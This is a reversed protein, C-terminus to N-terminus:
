SKAISNAIHFHKNMFGNHKPRSLWVFLLSLLIPTVSYVSLTFYNGFMITWIPKQLFAFLLLYRIDLRSKRYVIAVFLIILFTYVVIGMAGMDLYMPTLWTAANLAGGYTTLNTDEYFNSQLDLSPIMEAFITWNSGHEVVSNFNNFNPSIYSYVANFAPPYPTYNFVISGEDVRLMIMLIFGVAVIGLAVLLNRPKINIRRALIALLGFVIILLTGRSVQVFTIYLVCVAIEIIEIIAVRKQPSCIVLDYIFILAFYPLLSTGLHILSSSSTIYSSKSDYVNLGLNLSFGNLSWESISCLLCVVFLLHFFLFVNPSIEISAVAQEKRNSPKGSFVLGVTFIILSSLVVSIYTEICWPSDYISLQMTGIGACILWFVLMISFPNLADRYLRYFFYYSFLGVTAFIIFQM